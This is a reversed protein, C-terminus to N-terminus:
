QVIINTLLKFLLLYKPQLVNVDLSLSSSNMFIKTSSFSHAEGSDLTLKYSLIRQVAQFIPDSHPQMEKLLSSSPYTVEKKYELSSFFPLVWNYLGVV